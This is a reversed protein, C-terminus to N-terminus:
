MSPDFPMNCVGKLDNATVRVSKTHPGELAIAGVLSRKFLSHMWVYWSYMEEDSLEDINEIQTYEDSYKQDFEKIMRTFENKLNWFSVKFLLDFSELYDDIYVLCIHPFGNESPLPQELNIFRKSRLKLSLYVWLPLTLNALGKMSKITHKLSAKSWYSSGWINGENQSISTINAHIKSHAYMVSVFESWPKLVMLVSSLEGFTAGNWDANCLNNHNRTHGGITRKGKKNPVKFRVRRGGKSRGGKSLGGKRKPATTIDIDDDNNENDNHSKTAEEHIPDIIDKISQPWHKYDEETHWDCIRNGVILLSFVSEFCLCIAQTITQYKAKIDMPALPSPYWDQFKGQQLMKVRDWNNLTWLIDCLGFVTTQHCNARVGKTIHFQQYEQLLDRVTAIPPDGKKSPKYKIKGSAYQRDLEDCIDKIFWDIRNALRPNLDNSSIEALRAYKEPVLTQALAPFLVHALTSMSLMLDMETDEDRKRRRWIENAFWIINYTGNEQKEAIESSLSRADYMGNVHYMVDENSWEIKFILNVLVNMLPQEVLENIFAAAAMGWRYGIVSPDTLPCTAANPPPVSAAKQPKMSESAQAAFAANLPPVSGAKQPSERPQPSMSYELSLSGSPQPSMSSGVNSSSERPQPTPLEPVEVTPSVSGNQSEVNDSLVDM